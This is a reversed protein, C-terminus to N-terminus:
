ELSRSFFYLLIFNIKLTGSTRSCVGTRHVGFPRSGMSLLMGEEEGTGLFVITIWAGPQFSSKSSSVVWTSCHSFGVHRFYPTDTFM